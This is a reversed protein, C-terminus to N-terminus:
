MYHRSTHSSISRLFRTGRCKVTIITEKNKKRVIGALVPM